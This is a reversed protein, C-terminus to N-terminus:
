PEQPSKENIECDEDRSIREVCRRIRMSAGKVMESHQVPESVTREAMEIISLSNRIHHNLYGVEKFRRQVHKQRAKLLAWVLFTFITAEFLNEFARETLWPLRLLKFVYDLCFGVIGVLLGWFLAKGAISRREYHGLIGNVPPPNAPSRREPMVIPTRRGAEAM